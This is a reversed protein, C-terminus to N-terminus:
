VVELSNKIKITAEKFDSGVEVREFLLGTQAYLKNVFEDRIQMKESNHSKGDLEIAMAIKNNKVDWILFDVHKSKIKNWWKQYEEKQATVEVFDALRVKPFILFRKTDLQENLVRLFEHESRSFLYQKIRYPLLEEEIEHESITKFIYLAVALVIVIISPIIVPWIFASIDM